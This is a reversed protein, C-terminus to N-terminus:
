RRSAQKVQGARPTLSFGPPTLSRCFSKVRSKPGSACEPQRRSGNLISPNHSGREEVREGFFKKPTTRMRM